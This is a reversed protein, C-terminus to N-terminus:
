HPPMGIYVPVPGPPFQNLARLKDDDAGIPRLHIYYVDAREVVEEKPQQELSLYMVNEFRIHMYGPLLEFYDKETIEVMRETVIRGKLNVVTGETWKAGPAERTPVEKWQPGVQVFTRVAPLMVYFNHEPFANEMWISVHYKNDPTYSVDEVDARLYYWGMRELKKKRERQQEVVRDQYLGVLYDTASLVGALGIAGTALALLRRRSRRQPAPPAHLGADSTAPREM